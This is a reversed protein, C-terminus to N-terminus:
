LGNQSVGYEAEETTYGEFELQTILSSRSFPMTDLYTKASKKAQEKWDVEIFEVAYLADESSYGEFELQRRLGSKSFAMFSLYNEAARRANSQGNSEDANTESETEDKQEATSSEIDTNEVVELQSGTSAPVESSNGACSFLVLSFVLLISPFIKM